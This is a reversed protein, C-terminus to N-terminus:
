FQQAGYRKNYASPYAKLMVIRKGMLRECASLHFYERITIIFFSTEQTALAIAPDWEEPNKELSVCSTTPTYFRKLFRPPGAQKSTLQRHQQVIFVLINPLTRCFKRRRQLANISVPKCKSCNCHPTLKLIIM